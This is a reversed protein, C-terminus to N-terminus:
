YPFIKYLLQTILGGRSANGVQGSGSYSIRANAIRQSSISNSNDIDEPRVIGTLRVYERGQNITVWSEGQVILNNNALVRIVTVSVTGRLKNYQNTQGKGDFQLDTGTDFILSHLMGGLLVPQLNGGGTTSPNNSTPGNNTNSTSVKNAKTQAQKEGQTAEELRVTLIDGVRHALHDEYLSIQHGEQYIAGSSKPPAPNDVPYAPPYLTEDSLGLKDMHACGTLLVLSLEIIILKLYNKIQKVNMM